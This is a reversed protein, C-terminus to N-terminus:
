KVFRYTYPNIEIKKEQTKNKKARVIFFIILGILIIVIVIIIILFLNGSSSKPNTSGSTSNKGNLSNVVNQPLAPAPQYNVQNNSVVNQPYSFIYNEM